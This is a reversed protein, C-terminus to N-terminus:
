CFSTVFGETIILDFNRALNLGTAIQKSNACFLWLHVLHLLEVVHLRNLLVKLLALDVLEELVKELLQDNSARLVRELEKKLLDLHVLHATNEKKASGAAATLLVKFSDGLVELPLADASALQEALVDLRVARVGGADGGAEVVVLHTLIAAKKRM